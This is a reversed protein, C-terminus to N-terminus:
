KSLIEIFLLRALNEESGRMGGIQASKSKGNIYVTLINKDIKYKGKILNRKFEFELEEFM